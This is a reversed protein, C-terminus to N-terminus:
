LYRDEAEWLAEVKPRDAEDLQINSWYYITSRGMSDTSMGRLVDYLFDEAVSDGDAAVQAVAAGFAVPVNTGGVIGFCQTGYMGRGSYDWRVEFEDNALEEAYDAIKKILDFSYATM